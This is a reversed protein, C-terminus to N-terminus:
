FDMENNEKLTQNYRRYIERIIKEDEGYGNYEEPSIGDEKLKSITSAIRKESLNEDLIVLQKM